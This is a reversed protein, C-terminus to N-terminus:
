KTQYEDQIRVLKEHWGKQRSQSKSVNISMRISEKAKDLVKQIKSKVRGNRRLIRGCERETSEMKQIREVTCTLFRRRIYENELIELFYFRPIMYVVCKNKAMVAWKRPTEDFM